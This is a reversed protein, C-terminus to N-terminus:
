SECVVQSHDGVLEVHYRKSFLSQFETNHEVVLVSDYSQSLEELMNFAKVKLSVDLGDLAEDLFLQRIETGVSDATARMVSVTFCLRLLGRQGKSLQRYNCNYGNKAIEVDITDDSMTFNVRFEGDFYRELYRNTDSQIRNVINHLLTSRLQGSLDLLQDLSSLRSNLDNSKNTLDSLITELRQIENQCESAQTIHPNEEKELESLQEIYVNTREKATELAQTYPNSEKLRRMNLKNAVRLTSIREVEDTASVPINGCTPCKAEARAAALRKEYWDDPLTEEKIKQYEKAWNYSKAQLEKIEKDKEENFSSIAKRARELVSAHNRDWLDRQRSISECSARYAKLQGTVGACTRELEDAAKRAESKAKRAGDSIKTALELNALGELVERRKKAPSVFFSATPAFEHFYSAAIFRDASIGLRTELRKQTDSLDKGRTESSVGGPRQETWFLDNAREGKKRTISLSEGQSTEVILTGTTGDNEQWPRIDDVGGGKATQGYLCWTVADLLASKGAGTAGSILALGQSSFDFELVQYSTFNKVHLKGLKV